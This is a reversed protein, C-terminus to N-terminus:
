GTVRCSGADVPKEGNWIRLFRSILIGASKLLGLKGLVGLGAASYMQHNLSAKGCISRAENEWGVEM